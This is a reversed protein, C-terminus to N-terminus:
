ALLFFVEDNKVTKIKFPRMFWIFIWCDCWISCWICVLWVGLTVRNELCIRMIPDSYCIYHSCKGSFMRGVLFFLDWDTVSTSKPWEINIQLAHEGLTLTEVTKSGLSEWRWARQMLPARILSEHTNLPSEARPERLTGRAVIFTEWKLSSSLTYCTLKCTHQFTHPDFM